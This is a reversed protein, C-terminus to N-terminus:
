GCTLEVIYNVQKTQRVEILALHGAKCAVVLLTEGVNNTINPDLGSDLLKRLLLVDGYVAASWAFAELRELTQKSSEKLDLSDRFDRSNIHEPTEHKYFFQNYGGRSHFERRALSYEAADLRQLSCGACFSGNVTADYLWNLETERPLHINYGKARHWTAFHAWAPGYGKKASSTMAEM